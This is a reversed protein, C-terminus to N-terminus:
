FKTKSKRRNSKRLLLNRLAIIMMCFALFHSIALSTKLLLLIAVAVYIYPLYEYLFEPLINNNKATKHRDVRRHSSRTVLTICAAAYFLGASIFVVWTEYFALLYASVLFYAYPLNEYIFKPFFM